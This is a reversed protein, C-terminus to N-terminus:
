RIQRNIQYYSPLTLNFKSPSVHQMNENLLLCYDEVPVPDYSHFKPPYSNEFVFNKNKSNQKRQSSHERSITLIESKGVVARIKALSTQISFEFRKIHIQILKIILEQVQTQKKEISKTCALYSVKKFAVLSLRQCKCKVKM